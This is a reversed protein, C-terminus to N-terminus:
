KSYLELGFMEIIAMKTGTSHKSHIENCMSRVGPTSTHLHPQALNYKQPAGATMRRFKCKLKAEVLGRKRYGIRFRFSDIRQNARRILKSLRGESM